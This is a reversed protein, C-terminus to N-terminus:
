TAIAKGYAFRLWNSFEVTLHQTLGEVVYAPTSDPLWIGQFVEVGSGDPLDRAATLSHAFVTGDKLTLALVSQAAEPYEELLPVWAPRETLTGKFYTIPGKGWGEVSEVVSKGDSTGSASFSLFHQPSTELFDNPWGTGGAAFWAEISTANFVAPDAFGQVRAKGVTHGGTSNSLTAHWFADAAAVNPEVVATTGDQGLQSHYLYLVDSAQSIALNTPDLSGEIVSIPLDVRQRPVNVPVGGALIGFTSLLLLNKLEM